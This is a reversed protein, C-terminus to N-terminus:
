LGLSFQHCITPQFVKYEHPGLVLLILEHCCDESAGDWPLLLSGSTHLDGDQLSEVDGCEGPRPSRLTWTSARLPFTSSHIMTSQIMIFCPPNNDLAYQSDNGLPRTKLELEHKSEQCGGLNRAAWLARM